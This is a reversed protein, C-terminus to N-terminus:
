KRLTRYDNKLMGVEMQKWIKWVEAQKEEKKEERSDEM